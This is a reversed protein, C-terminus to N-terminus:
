RCLWIDYTFTMGCCAQVLGLPKPDTLAGIKTVNPVVLNTPRWGYAGAAKVGPSIGPVWKEPWIDYCVLLGNCYAHIHRKWIQGDRTVKVKCNASKDFSMISTIITWNVTYNNTIMYCSTWLPELAWFDGISHIGSDTRVPFGSLNM